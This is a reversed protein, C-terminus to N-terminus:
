WGCVRNYGGKDRMVNDCVKWGWGGFGEIGGDGEVKVGKM